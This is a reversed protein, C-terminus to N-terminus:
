AAPGDEAVEGPTGSTLQLLGSSALLGRMREKAETTPRVSVYPQGHVVEVGPLVEGDPGVATPEGPDAKAVAGDLLVKVFAPRIVEVTQVETPHNRRVWELLAREDAVRATVRGASLSVSGLNTGTEDGVRVREAGLTEMAERADARAPDIEEKLLSELVRLATIRRAAPQLDSM